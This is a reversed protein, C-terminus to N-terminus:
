IQGGRGARGNGLRGGSLADAFLRYRQGATGLVTRVNVFLFHGKRVQAIAPDVSSITRVVEAPVTAPVEAAARIATAGSTLLSVRAATMTTVGSSATNTPM